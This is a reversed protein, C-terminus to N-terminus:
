YVYETNKSDFIKYWSVSFNPVRNIHFIFIHFIEIAMMVEEEATEFHVESDFFANTM